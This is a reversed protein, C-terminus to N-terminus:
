HFTSPISGVQCTAQGRSISIHTFSQITRLIVFQPEAQLDDMFLSSYKAGVATTSTTGVAYRLAVRGHPKMNGITTRPTSHHLYDTIAQALHFPLVWPTRYRHFRDLRVLPEFSLHTLLRNTQPQGHFLVTYDTNREMPPQPPQAVKGHPKMNGITTSPTSCFYGSIV